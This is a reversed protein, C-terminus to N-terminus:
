NQKKDTALDTSMVYPPVINLRVYHTGYGGPFHGLFVTRIM